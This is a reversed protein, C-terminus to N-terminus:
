VKHAWQVLSPGPDTAVLSTVGIMRLVTGKNLYASAGGGGERTWVSHAHSQSERLLNDM